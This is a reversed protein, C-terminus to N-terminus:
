LDTDRCFKYTSAKFETLDSEIPAEYTYKLAYRVPNRMLGEKELIEAADEQSLGQQRVDMMKAAMSSWDDCFQISGASAQATTVLLAAIILTRKM